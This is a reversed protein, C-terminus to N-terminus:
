DNAPFTKQGKNIGSLRKQLANLSTTDEKGNARRWYVVNSKVEQIVPHKGNKALKRLQNLVENSSPKRSNNRWFDAVIQLITKKLTDNRPTVPTPSLRKINSVINGHGFYEREFREVEEKSVFLDHKTVEPYNKVAHYCYWCGDDEFRLLDAFGIDIPSENDKPAIVAYNDILFETYRPDTLHTSRKFSGRIFERKGNELIRFKDFDAQLRVTYHLKGDVLLNEVYATSVNWRKALEKVEYLFPEPLQMIGGEM